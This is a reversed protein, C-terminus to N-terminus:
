GSASRRAQGSPADFRLLTVRPGLQGIRQLDARFQRQALEVEAAGGLRFPPNEPSRPHRQNADSLSTLWESRPLDDPLGLFQEMAPASPSPRRPIGEFMWRADPSVGAIRSLIADQNRFFDRHDWIVIEAGPFIQAIDEVLDAWGRDGRLWDSLYSKPITPPYRGTRFCEVLIAGAFHLLNRISLFVTVKQGDLMAALESLKRGPDPYLMRSQELTEPSGLLNEESLILRAVGPRALEGALFEAARARKRLRGSDNIKGLRATVEARLVAHPMFRVQHPGLVDGNREFVGQIFTSATKHAGIHLAIEM